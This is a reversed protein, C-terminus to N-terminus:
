LMSYCKKGNFKRLYNLAKLITDESDGLKGMGVNCDKCLWGRFQKKKHCHDFQWNKHVPKGCCDCPMGFVPRKYGKKIRKFNQIGKKSM